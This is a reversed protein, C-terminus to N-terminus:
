IKNHQIAKKSERSLTSGIVGDVVVDGAQLRPETDM